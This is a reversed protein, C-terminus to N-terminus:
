KSVVLEDTFNKNFWAMQIDNELGGNESRVRNRFVGEQNFGMKEYFSIAKKNSEQAALEVRLIDPRSNEIASLLTHFLLKGIGHQQFSPAVVVTLEGFVHSFKQPGWRYCHIEGILEDENAPNSVVFELGSEAANKQFSQIYDQTIESENRAIGGPISAVSKYLSILRPLDQPTAERIPFM